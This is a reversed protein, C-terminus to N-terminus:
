DVTAQHGPLNFPGFSGAPLAAPAAPEPHMAARRAAQSARPMFAMEKTDSIGAEDLPAVSRGTGFTTLWQGYFLILQRPNRGGNVDVAALAVTRGANAIHEAHRRTETSLENCKNLRQALAQLEIAADCLENMLRESRSLM